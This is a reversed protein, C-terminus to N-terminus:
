EWVTIRGGAGSGAGFVVGETAEPRAAVPVRTSARPAEPRIEAEWSPDRDCLWIGSFWESVSVSLSLSVVGGVLSNNVERDGVGVGAIGPESEVKISWWASTSCNLACTVRVSPCCPAGVWTVPPEPDPSEGSRTTWCSWGWGERRPRGDLLVDRRVCSAPKSWGVTSSPLAGTLDLNRLLALKPPLCQPKTLQYWQTTGNDEM